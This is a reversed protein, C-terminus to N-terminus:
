HTYILWKFDFLPTKCYSKFLTNYQTNSQFFTSRQILWCLATQSEDWNNIQKYPFDQEEKGLFQTLYAIAKGISEEKSYLDINIKRALLCFDLIHNLNFISYHMALTRELEYPQSGDANIQKNLRKESFHTIIEKAIEEQNTFLAYAIVQVDYAIAHNNKTQACQKGSESTLLWNLFASFWKKFENYERKSVASSESLIEICQVINIFGYTDIIGESRGNNNNHGRIVQAFNLNPNMKTNKDLFWLRIYEMAKNAYKKDQTFYYAYTLNMVAHTLQELKYRDLRKIEPNPIGDKRIYPLGDVQTTDPWWYRGISIYDQKDQSKATIEKDIISPISDRLEKNAKRILEEYAKHKKLQKEKQQKVRNLQELTILDNSLSFIPFLFCLILLSILKM